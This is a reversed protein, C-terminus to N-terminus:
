DLYTTQAKSQRSDKMQKSRAKGVTIDYLRRDVKVADSNTFDFQSHLIPNEHVHVNLGEGIIERYSNLQVIKKWSDFDLTENKFKLKVSPSTGDSVTAVIDRFSSKQMARNKKGQYKTSDKSLEELTRVLEYKNEIFLDIDQDSEMFHLSLDEIFLAINEGSAVRVDVDEHELLDVHTELLEEKDPRESIVSYVLGYANLASKLVTKDANEFISHIFELVQWRTHDDVDQVFTIMALVLLYLSQQDEKGNKIGEKLITIAQDYFPCNAITITILAVVRASLCGETGGRKTNRLLARTWSEAKSEIIDPIYKFSLNRISRILAAERISSRKEELEEICTEIQQDIPEEVSRQSATRSIPISARSSTTVNSDDSDGDDDVSLFEKKNKRKPAMIKSNNMRATNEKRQTDSLLECKTCCRSLYLALFEIDTIKCCIEMILLDIPNELLEKYFLRLQQGESLRICVMAINPNNEVIGAFLYEELLTSSLMGPENELAVILRDQDQKKMPVKSAKVLLEVM